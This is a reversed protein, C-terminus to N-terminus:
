GRAPPRGGPRTVAISAGLELALALLALARPGAIMSLYELCGGIV